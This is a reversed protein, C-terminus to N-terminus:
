NKRFFYGLLFNKNPIMWMVCAFAIANRLAKGSNSPSKMQIFACLVGYLAYLKGMLNNTPKGM